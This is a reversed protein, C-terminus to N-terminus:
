NDLIEKFYNIFQNILQNASKNNISQNIIVEKAQGATGPHM